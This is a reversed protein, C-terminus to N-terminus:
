SFVLCTILFGFIGNYDWYLPAELLTLTAYKWDSTSNPDNQNPFPTEPHTVHAHQCQFDIRFAFIVVTATIISACLRSKACLV